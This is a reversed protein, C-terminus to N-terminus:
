QQQGRKRAAAFWSMGFSSFCHMIRLGAFGARGDAKDSAFPRSTIQSKPFTKTQRIQALLSRMRGNFKEPVEVSSGTGLGGRFRTPDYSGRSTYNPQMCM